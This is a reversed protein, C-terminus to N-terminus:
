VRGNAASMIPQICPSVQATRSSPSLSAALSTYEALARQAQEAHYEFIQQQESLRQETESQSSEASVPVPAAAHIGEADM